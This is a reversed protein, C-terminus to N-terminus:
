LYYRINEEFLHCAMNKQMLDIYDIIGTKDKEGADIRSQLSDIIDSIHNYYKNHDLPTIAGHPLKGYKLIYKKEAILEDIQEQLGL